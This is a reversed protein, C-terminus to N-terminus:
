KIALKGTSTMPGIWPLSTCAYEYIWSEEAVVPVEVTTDARVTQRVGLGPILFRHERGVSTVRFVIQVARGERDLALVAPECRNDRAVVDFEIRKAEASAVRSARQDAFM